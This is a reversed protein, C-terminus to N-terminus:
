EDEPRILNEDRILPAEPFVSRTKDDREQGAKEAEGQSLLNAFETKQTGIEQVTQQINQVEGAITEIAEAGEQAVELAKFFKNTKFNLNVNMWGYANEAVVGFRKAANGILAVYRGVTELAETISYLISQVANLINAAAQYIRNARTWVAKVTEVNQDGFISKLTNDIQEGVWESTSIANDEDDKLQNGFIEFIIDFAGFLTQGLNNSLMMANHITTWFTLLNMIRDIHFWKWFKKLYGSLGGNVQPGLKNDVKTLMDTQYAQIALQVIEMQQTRSNIGPTHPDAVFRCTPSPPTTGTGPPPNTSTARTPTRRQQPYSDRGGMASPIIAPIGFPLAGIPNWVPTNGPQPNAPPAILPNNTPSPPATPSLPNPTPAPNQPTFPDTPSSPILTTPNTPTGTAPFVTPSPATIPALSPQNPAGPLPSLNGGVDPQGDARAVSFSIIRPQSANTKVGVWPTYTGPTFPLPSGHPISIYWTDRNFADVYSSIIPYGIPGYLTAGDNPRDVTQGYILDDYEFHLTVNYLTGASQGGYFPPAPGREFPQNLDPTSNNPFLTDYLRDGLWGGGFGGLAGGILGGAVTGLGPLVATGLAAGQAAGYLGGGLGGLAGAGARGVGEGAQLGGVFDLGAAIYPLAPAVARYAAGAGRAVPALRNALPALARRAPAISQNLGQSLNQLPRNAIPRTLNQPNLVPTPSPIPATPSGSSRQRAMWDGITQLQDRPRVYTPSNRYPPPSYGDEVPLNRTIRPQPRPEPSSASRQEALYDALTKVKSLPQGRVPTNRYTAPAEDPAAAYNGTAQPGTFGGARRQVIAKRGETVPDFQPRNDPYWQRNLLAELQSISPTNGTEIRTQSTM